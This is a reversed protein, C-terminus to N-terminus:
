LFPDEVVGISHNVLLNLEFIPQVDITPEEVPLLIPVEADNLQILNHLFDTISINKNFGSVRAITVENNRLVLNAPRQSLNDIYGM